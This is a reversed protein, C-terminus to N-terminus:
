QWAPQSGIYLGQKTRSLAFTIPLDIEKWREPKWRWRRLADVASSDLAPFGTSKLITVEKVVGTKLDLMLRLFGSGMHRSARESHAYNPTVTKLVDNMWPARGPYDNAQHRVGHVDVASSRRGEGEAKECPLLIYVCAVGAIITHRLQRM